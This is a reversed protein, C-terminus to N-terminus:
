VGGGGARAPLTEPSKTTASVCEGTYCGPKPTLLCALLESKVITEYLFLIQCHGNLAEQRQQTASLEATVRTGPSAGPSFHSARANRLSESFGAGAGRRPECRDGLQKQMERRGGSPPHPFCRSPCDTLVTPLYLIAGKLVPGRPAGGAFRSLAWRRRVTSRVLLLVRSDCLFSCWTFRANLSDCEM